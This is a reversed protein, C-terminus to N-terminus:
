AKAAFCSWASTSARRDQWGREWDSLPQPLMHTGRVVSTGAGPYAHGRLSSAVLGTVPRFTKHDNVVAGFGVARDIVGAAPRHAAAATHHHQAHDLGFVLILLPEPDGVDHPG